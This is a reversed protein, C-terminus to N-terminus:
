LTFLCEGSVRERPNQLAERLFQDVSNVLDESGSAAAASSGLGADALEPSNSSGLSDRNSLMLRTMSADLDAVEWSEPPAGDDVSGEMAKSSRLPAFGREKELTETRSM